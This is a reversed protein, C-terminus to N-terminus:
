YGMACGDFRPESGGRYLGSAPDCLIGQYGGVFNGIPDTIEVLNLDSLDPPAVNTPM